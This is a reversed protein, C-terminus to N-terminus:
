CEIDRALRIKSFKCSCTSSYAFARLLNMHASCRDQMHQLCFSRHLQAHFQIEFLMKKQQLINLLKYILIWIHLIPKDGAPLYQWVHHCHATCMLHDSILKCAIRLCVLGSKGIQTFQVYCLLM